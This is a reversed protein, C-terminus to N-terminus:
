IKKIEEIVLDFAANVMEVPAFSLAPVLLLSLHLDHNTEYLRKLFVENTKRNFAQCLHFYCGKLLAGSTEMRQKRNKKRRNQHSLGWSIQSM